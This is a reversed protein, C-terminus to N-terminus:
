IYMMAPLGLQRRLLSMQGIHYSDHQALFGAMGLLTGDTGPFRHGTQALSVEDLEDLVAMLHLSVADWASVITAIPPLPELEDLTRGKELVGRLPNETARGTM